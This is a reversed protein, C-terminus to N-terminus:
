HKCMRQKKEKTDYTFMAKFVPSRASLIYNHVPFSGTKTKLKMNCFLNEKYLAELNEYLNKSDLRIKKSDSDLRIKKSKLGDSSLNEEQVWSSCLSVIKEIKAMRIGSSFACECYLQLVDNPLYRNRNKMLEEKSTTLAFSATTNCENFLIENNLCETGKGSIDIFHIRFTSFNLWYEHAYVDVRIFTESAQESSPHFKLTVMPQNTSNSHIDCLSSRFSSFQEINWKFSRWEVGIRTRAFWHEYNTIENDHGIRCRATLINGPLYDKRRVKLVVDRKVFNGYGWSKEKVFTNEFPGTSVLISDDTGIFSLEHRIDVNWPGSCTIDRILLFSIFDKTNENNGKPYLKLRWRSKGMTDVVFVPSLLYEGNKLSSYGFNEIKWTFTFSMNENISDCDM